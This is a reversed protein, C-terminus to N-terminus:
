STPPAEPFRLTVRTEDGVRLAEVEGGVRGILARAIAVALPRGRLAAQASLAEAPGDDTLVLATGDRWSALALRLTGREPGDALHTVTSALLMVLLPHLWDCGPAPLVAEAVGKTELAVGRVGDAQVEHLARAVVDSWRGRSAGLRAGRDLIPRLLSLLPGARGALDDILMSASALGRTDLDEDLLHAQLRIAGLHNGVEHAIAFVLADAAEIAQNSDNVGRRPWLPM